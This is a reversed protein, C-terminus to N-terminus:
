PQRRRRPVVKRYHIHKVKREWLYQREIVYLDYLHPKFADDLVWAWVYQEAQLEACVASTFGNDLRERGSLKRLMSDTVVAERVKRDTLQKIIQAATEKATMLEKTSM